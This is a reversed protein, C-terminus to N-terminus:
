VSRRFLSGAEFEVRRAGGPKKFHIKLSNLAGEAGDQPARPAKPAVNYVGLINRPLGHV